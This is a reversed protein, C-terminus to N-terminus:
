LRSTDSPEAEAVFLITSTDYYDTTTGAPRMGIRECVAQSAHNDPSTVAVVRPLGSGLLHHLVARAGETIYGQGSHEPHARWGIEVDNLAVGESAPIPQAMVLGVVCGDGLRELAVIGLTPDDDFRAFRAVRAPVESEDELVQTPIFRRLQQSQHIALIADVDGMDFPRLRLRATALPIM